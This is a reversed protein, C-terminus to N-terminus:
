PAGDCTLCKLIDPMSAMGLSSCGTELADELLMADLQLRVTKTGDAPVLIRLTDGYDAAYDPSGSCVRFDTPLEAFMAFELEMTGIEYLGEATTLPEPARFSEAQFGDIEAVCRNFNPNGVPPCEADTSCPTGGVLCMIPVLSPLTCDEGLVNGADSGNGSQINIGGPIVPNASGDECPGGICDVPGLCLDGANSSPPACVGDLPRLVLSGILVNICDWDISTNETNIVEVEFEVQSNGTPLLNSGTCGAAALALCAAVFLTIYRTALRM